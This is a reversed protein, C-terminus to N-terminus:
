KQFFEALSRGKTFIRGVGMNRIVSFNPASEERLLQIMEFKSYSLTAFLM